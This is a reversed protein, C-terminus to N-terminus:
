LHSPAPARGDLADGLFPLERRQPQRGGLHPAHRDVAARRDARAAVALGPRDRDAFAPAVAPLALARVCAADGHVRDVVRETAALALAGTSAVRHRRPALGFTAG